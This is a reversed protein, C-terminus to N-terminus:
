NVRGFHLGDTFLRYGFDDHVTWQLTSLLVYKENCVSALGESSMDWFFVKNRVVMNYADLSQLGKGTNIYVLGNKADACIASTDHTYSWNRQAISIPQGSDLDYTFIENERGIVALLSGDFRASGLDCSLGIFTQHTDKSKKLM